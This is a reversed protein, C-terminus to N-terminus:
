PIGSFSEISSFEDLLLNVKFIERDDLTSHSPMSLMALSGRATPNTTVQSHDIPRLPIITSDLIAGSSPM